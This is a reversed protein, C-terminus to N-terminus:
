RQLFDSIEKEPKEKSQFKEAVEGVVNDLDDLTRDDKKALWELFM